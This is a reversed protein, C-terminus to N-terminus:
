DHVYSWVRIQLFQLCSLWKSCSFLNMILSIIVSHWFDMTESKTSKNIWLLTPSIGFSLQCTWFVIRSPEKIMLIDKAWYKKLSAESHKWGSLERADRTSPKTKQGFTMRHPSLVCSMVSRLVYAPLLCLGLWGTCEMVRVLASADLIPVHVLDPWHSGWPNNRPSQWKLRELFFPITFSRTIPAEMYLWFLDWWSTYLCSISEPTMTPGQILGSGLRVGHRSTWYRWVIKNNNGLGTTNHKRDGTASLCTANM